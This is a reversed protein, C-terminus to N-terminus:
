KEFVRYLCFIATKNFTVVIFQSFLKYFKYKIHCTSEMNLALAILICTIM